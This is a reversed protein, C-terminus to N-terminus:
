ARTRTLSAIRMRAREIDRKVQLVMEAFLDWGKAQADDIKEKLRWIASTKLDAFEAEIAIRREDIEAVTRRYREEDAEPHDDAVSDPSRHWATLILRLRDEDREAYARNAEAMLSHRRCRAPEDMALDPHINKALDRFVRKLDDSPAASNACAADMEADEDQGDDKLPPPAERLGQRIEEEAIAAELVALEQYLPGIDGLYRDQLARLDLKLAALEGERRSLQAELDDLHVRRANPPAIQIGTTSTM